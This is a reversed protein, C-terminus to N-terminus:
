LLMKEVVQFTCCALFVCVQAGDELFTAFVVLHGTISIDTSEFGCLSPFKNFPITEKGVYYTTKFLTMLAEDCTRTAQAVHKEMRKSGCQAAWALKQHEM